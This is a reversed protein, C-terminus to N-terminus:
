YAHNKLLVFLYILQTGRIANEIMLHAEQSTQLQIRSGIFRLASEWAFSALTYFRMPDLRLDKIVATRLKSIIDATFLCDTILALEMLKKLSKEDASDWVRQVVRYEEESLSSGEVCDGFHEILPLDSEALEEPGKIYDRCLAIKCLRHQTISHPWYKNAHLFAEHGEEAKLGDVLSTLSDKFFNKFDIFRCRDITLGAYSDITKPIVSIKKVGYIEAARMLIRGDYASLDNIVVVLHNPVRLKLNCGM